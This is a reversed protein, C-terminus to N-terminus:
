VEKRKQSSCATRTPRVERLPSCTCFTRLAGPDPRSVDSLMLADITVSEFVQIEGYSVHEFRDVANLIRVFSCCLSVRSRLAHVPFSHISSFSISDANAPCSRFLFSPLLRYSLEQMYLTETCVVVFRTLTCQDHKGCACRCCAYNNGASRHTGTRGSPALRILCRVASVASRIM